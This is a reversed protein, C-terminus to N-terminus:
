GSLWARRALYFKQYNAPEKMSRILMNSHTDFLTTLLTSTSSTNLEAMKRKNEQTLM